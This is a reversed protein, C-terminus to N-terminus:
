LDLVLLFDTERDLLLLKAFLSLSKPLSPNFSARALDLSLFGRLLLASLSSFRRIETSFFLSFRLDREPDGLALFLFSRDTVGLGVRIWM